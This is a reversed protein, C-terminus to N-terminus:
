HWEKTQWIQNGNLNSLFVKTLLISAIGWAFSKGLNKSNSWEGPLYFNIMGGPFSKRFVQKEGTYVLTSYVIISRHSTQSITNLMVCFKGVKENKKELIHIVKKEKGSFIIMYVKSQLVITAQVPSAYSQM